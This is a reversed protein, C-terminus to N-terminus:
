TTVPAGSWDSQEIEQWPIIATDGRTQRVAGGYVVRTTVALDPDRRRLGHALREVSTTFDSAVTAGSKAETLIVTRPTGSM